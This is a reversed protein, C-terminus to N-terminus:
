TAAEAAAAAKERELEAELATASTPSLWKAQWPRDTLFFLVVVGLVVAPIGWGIYVWQWGALGLVKPHHVLM